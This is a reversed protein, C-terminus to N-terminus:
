KTQSFDDGVGGATILLGYRDSAFWCLPCIVTKDVMTQMQAQFLM